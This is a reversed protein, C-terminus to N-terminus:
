ASYDPVFPRARLRTGLMRGALLEPTMPALLVEDVGALMVNRMVEMSTRETILHRPDDAGAM